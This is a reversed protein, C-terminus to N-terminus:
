EQREAKVIRRGIWEALKRNGVDLVVILRYDHRIAHRQLALVQEVDVVRWSWEAMKRAVTAPRGQARCITAYDAAIADGATTQSTYIM